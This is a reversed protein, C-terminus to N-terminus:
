EGKGKCFNIMKLTRTGPKGALLARFSDAGAQSHLVHVFAIKCGDPSVAENWVLGSLLRQPHDRVLLYGGATGVTDYGARGGVLFLGRKTLHANGWGMREWDQEKPELIKTVTGDPSLQWISVADSSRQEGKLIYANAFEAYTAHFQVERGILPLEINKKSDPTHLVIPTSKGSPDVWIPVGFDLHGHEELLAWRRHGDQSIWEPQQEHQRCSTGNIWIKEEERREHAGNLDGTVVNWLDQGPQVRQKFAVVGHFVCLGVQSDINWYKTVKNQTIDWIFIGTERLEHGDGASKQGFRSVEYGHFVVHENDIWGLKAEAAPFKSDQIPYHPEGCAVLQPSLGMFLLVVILALKRTLDIPGPMLISKNSEKVM